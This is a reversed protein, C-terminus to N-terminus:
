GVVEISTTIDIAGELSNSVPCHDAGWLLADREADERPGKVRIRRRLGTIKLRRQRPDKPGSVTINQEHEVRVDLEDLTIQREHAVGVLTV